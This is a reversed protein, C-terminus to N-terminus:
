AKKFLQEALEEDLPPKALARIEHPYFWDASEGELARPEGKWRSVSYLLIVIRDSGALGAEEAFAVPECDQGQVVIGLEEHLERILTKVPMEAHEVKGGPFEWLGGHHKQFPRRHMLWAGGVGKLAGAVVWIPGNSM